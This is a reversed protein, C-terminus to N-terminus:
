GLTAKEESKLWDRWAQPDAPLEQQTIRRLERHATSSVKEDESELARILIEIAGKHRLTPQLRILARALTKQRLRTMGSLLHEAFLGCLGLGVAVHLVRGEGWVEELKEVWGFSPFLLAFGLLLITLLYFARAARLMAPLM